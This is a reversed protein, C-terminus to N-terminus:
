QKPLIKEQALYASARKLIELEVELVRNRCRFEVFEKREASKLGEKRGFDVDCISM